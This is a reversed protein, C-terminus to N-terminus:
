FTKQRQVHMANPGIVESNSERDSKVGVHKEDTKNPFQGSIKWVLRDRSTDYM